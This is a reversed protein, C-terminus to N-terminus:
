IGGCGDIFAHFIAGSEVEFGPDLIVEQGADFDVNSNTKIINNGTVSIDAEYDFSGQLTTTIVEHDPCMSTACLLFTAPNFMSTGSIRIFLQSGPSIGTLNIEAHGDTSNAYACTKFVSQCSGLYIEMFIDSRGREVEETKINLSGSNPSIVSFWVDNSQDTSSGNCSIGGLEDNALHTSYINTSCTSSLPINIANSCVDNVTAEPEIACIGFEGQKLTNASYASIFLVEGPQRGNLRISRSDIGCNEIRNLNNCTGEFIEFAADVEVDIGWTNIILEGSAPVIVTFWVDQGNNGAYCSFGGEPSYSAGINDFTNNRCGKSVPLLIANMCDDNVVSVCPSPTMIADRLSYSSLSYCDNFNFNANLRADINLQANGAPLEISIIQPSSTIPFNKSLFEIHTASGDHRYTVLFDQIYTNTTPDCASQGIPEILEIKCQDSFGADSICIQFEGTNSYKDMARIYLIEGPTRGELEIKGFREFNTTQNKEFSCAIPSLSSCGSGEYVELIISFAGNVVESAEITVNGSPPVIATYWVDGQNFNAGCLVGPYPNDSPTSNFNDTTLCTGVPIDTAGLCFNNSIPPTCIVYPKNASQETAIRVYLIEGPVRNFLGITPGDSVHTCNLLELANCAGEYIEVGFNTFEYDGSVVPDLSLSIFGEAPVVISYWLDNGDLFSACSTPNAGNNEDIALHNSYVTTLDCTTNMSIPIADACVDNTSPTPYILCLNFDGQHDDNTDKVQIFITDGVTLGTLRASRFDFACSQFNLQGCSGTYVLISPSVDTGNWANVIIDDTSTTVHKFWVDQTGQTFPECFGGTGSHTAGLNNGVHTICMNDPTIDIAGVCEDNSVTGAFCNTNRQFGRLSFFNSFNYCSNFTVASLQADITQWGSNAPVDPIQVVVPNSQLPISQDILFMENALGVNDRYHITLEQTYTNTTPDCISQNTSEIFEIKCPFDTYGRDYVCLEFQRNNFNVESIRIFYAQGPTMGERELVPMNYDTNSMKYFACEVPTLANCSGSYLELIMATSPGGQISNLEITFNGSPPAVVTFWIDQANLFNSGCHMPSQPNNSATAGTNDFVTCNGDVLVPIATTCVDNTPQCIPRILLITFM